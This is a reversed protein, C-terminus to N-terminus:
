VICAQILFMKPKWLGDTKCCYVTLYRKKGRSRTIYHLLCPHWPKCSWHIESHCYKWMDQPNDEATYNRYIEVRYSFVLVPINRKFQTWWQRCGWANVTQLINCIIVAIGHSHCKIVYPPNHSQYSEHEVAQFEDFTLMTMVMNHIVFSYVVFM